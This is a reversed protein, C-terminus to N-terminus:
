WLPQQALVGAVKRAYRPLAVTLAHQRQTLGLARCEQRRRELDRGFAGNFAATDFSAIRCMLGARALARLSSLKVGWLHFRGPLVEAVAAVVRVLDAMESPQNRGCLSGIGVRYHQAAHQGWAGTALAEHDGFVDVLDLGYATYHYHDFQQALLPALQEAHRVYQGVTRGQVTAVYSWSRARHVEWNQTDDHGGWLEWAWHLTQEQRARVQRDLPALSPECPLDPLAAWSLRPGLRALWGEYDAWSFRYGGRSAAVFGVPISPL